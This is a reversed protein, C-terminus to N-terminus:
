RGRSCRSRAGAISPLDKWELDKAAWMKHAAAAPAATAAAPAAAPAPAKAKDQAWALPGFAATVLLGALQLQKSNM